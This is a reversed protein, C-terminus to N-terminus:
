RHSQQWYPWRQPDSSLDQFESARSQVAIEEDLQGANIRMATDNLAQLPTTIRTAAIWSGILALVLALIMSTILAFQM